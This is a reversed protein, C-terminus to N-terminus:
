AWVFITDLQSFEGAVMMEVAGAYLLPKVYIRCTWQALKVDDLAVKIDFLHLCCL